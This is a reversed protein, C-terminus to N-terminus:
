NIEVEIKSIRSLKVHYSLIDLKIITQRRNKILVHQRIERVFNLTLTNILNNFENNQIVVMMIFFLSSDRTM